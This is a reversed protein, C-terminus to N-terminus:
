NRRDRLKHELSYPTFPNNLSPATQSMSARTRELAEYQRMLKREGLEWAIDAALTYNGRAAAQEMREYDARRLWHKFKRSLVTIM